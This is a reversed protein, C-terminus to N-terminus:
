LRKPTRSRRASPVGRAIEAQLQGILAETDEIDASELVALCDQFLDITRRRM